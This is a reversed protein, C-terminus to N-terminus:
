SYYRSHSLRIARSWTRPSASGSRRRLPACARYRRLCRRRTDDRSRRRRAKWSTAPRVRPRPRSRRSKLSRIRHGFEAVAARAM